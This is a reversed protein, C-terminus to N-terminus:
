RNKARELREYEATLLAMAKVIERQRNGPTPRWSDDDFPWDMPVVPDPARLDQPLAYCAAATALEDNVHTDDHEASHGANVQNIRELVVLHDLEWSM